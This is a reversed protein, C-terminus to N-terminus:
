ISAYLAAAVSLASITTKFASNWRDDMCYVGITEGNEQYEQDCMEEPMCFDTSWEDGVEVWGCKPLLDDPCDDNSFCIEGYEEMTSWADEIQANVTALAALTIGFKM